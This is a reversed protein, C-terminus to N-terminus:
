LSDVPVDVYLRPQSKVSAGHQAPRTVGSPFEAVFRQGEENELVQARFETIYREIRLDIVQRREFGTERYHGVPLTRRDIDITQIEDPDAVPTLTTGNRDPQGSVSRTGAVRAKRERHPDSSPPKSSNRSNLGRRALLFKVVVLLLAVASKMSASAHVDEQLQKEVADIATQIDISDINAM